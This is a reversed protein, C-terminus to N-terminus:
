LEESVFQSCDFTGVAPKRLPMAPCAWPATRFAERSACFFRLMAGARRPVPARRSTRVESLKLTLWVSGVAGRERSRLRGSLGKPNLYLWAKYRKALEAVSDSSLTGALSVDGPVAPTEVGLREPSLEVLGM